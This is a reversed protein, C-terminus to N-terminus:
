KIELNNNNKILMHIIYRWLKGLLEKASLLLWGYSNSFNSDQTCNGAKPTTPCATDHWDVAPTVILSFWVNKSHLAEVVLWQKPLFTWKSEVLHWVTCVSLDSPWCCQLTKMWHFVQKYTQKMTVAVLFCCMFIIHRFLQKISRFREHLSMAFQTFIYWVGIFSKFCCLPLEAFGSVIGMIILPSNPFWITQPFCSKCTSLQSHTDKHIWKNM